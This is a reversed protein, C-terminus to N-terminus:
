DRVKLNRLIKSGAIKRSFNAASLNPDKEFCLTTQAANCKAHMWICMNKEDAYEEAALWRAITGNVIARQSQL